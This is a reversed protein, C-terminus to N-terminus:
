GSFMPMFLFKDALYVTPIFLIHGSFMCYHLYFRSWDALCLYYSIYIKLLFLVSLNVSCYQLPFCCCSFSIILSRVYLGFTFHTLLVLLHCFLSFLFLFLSIIKCYLSLFSSVLFFPLNQPLPLYLIVKKIHVTCQVTYLIHNM